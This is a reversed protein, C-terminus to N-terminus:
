RLPTWGPTRGLLTLIRELTPAEPVDDVVPAFAAGARLRAEGAPVREAVAVGTTILEADPAYPAGIAVALDWGHVVYDVFHFSIAQEAPFAIETSVEPLAFTRDLVDPQAFAAIVDDCAELYATVPDDGLPGPPWITPDAGNGRAAAAFGHHQVAMHELLALITWDGCPTPADLVDPTITRAVDASALVARRDLDRIDAM